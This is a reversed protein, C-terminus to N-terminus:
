DRRWWWTLCNGGLLISYMWESSGLVVTSASFVLGLVNYNSRFGRCRKQRERVTQKASSQGQGEERLIGWVLGTSYHINGKSSSSQDVTKALRISCTSFLCENPKRLQEDQFAWGSDWLEFLPFKRKFRCGINKFRCNITRGVIKCEHISRITVTRWDWNRKKAGKGNQLKHTFSTQGRECSLTELRRTTRSARHQM